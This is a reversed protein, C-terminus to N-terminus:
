YIYYSPSSMMASTDQQPQVRAPEHLQLGEVHYHSRDLRRKTIVTYNSTYFKLTKRLFDNADKQFTALIAVNSRETLSMILLLNYM